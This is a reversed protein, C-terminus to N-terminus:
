FPYQIGIGSNYLSKVEGDTLARKWLGVEDISGIYKGQSGIGISFTYNDGTNLTKTADETVFNGDMYTRLKHGISNYTVVIHHWMGDALKNDNSGIRVAGYWSDFMWYAPAGYYKLGFQQQDERNGCDIIGCSNLGNIAINPKIWISVSKSIGGSIGLESAKKGTTLGGSTGIFSAAHGILGNQSITVGTQVTCNNNGHSDYITTGSTEDIKWYSILDVSLATPPVIISESKCTKQNGYGTGMNNTAYARVYYTTNITLSSLSSTYNGTGIGDSTKNDAITPNGTKNWCVGRATISLGGDNSIIGGSNASVTTINYVELTTLEPIGFSPPDPKEPECSIQLLTILVLPFLITNKM